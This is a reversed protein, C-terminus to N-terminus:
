NIWQALGKCFTQFGVLLLLLIVPILSHAAYVTTFKVVCTLWITTLNLQFKDYVFIIFLSHNINYNSFCRDICLHYYLNFASCSFTCILLRGHPKGLQQFYKVTINCYGFVKCSCYCKVRTLWRGCLLPRDDDLYGSARYMHHEVTVFQGKSDDM